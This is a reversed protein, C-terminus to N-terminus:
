GSGPTPTGPCSGGPGSTDSTRWSAPTPSGAPRSCTAPVRYTRRFWGLWRSMGDLTDRYAAPDLEDWCIVVPVPPTQPTGGFLAPDFVPLNPAAVTM